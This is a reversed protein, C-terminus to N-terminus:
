QETIECEYLGSVKSVQFSRDIDGYQISFSGDMTLYNHASALRNLVEHMDAIFFIADEANSCKDEHIDAEVYLRIVFEELDSEDDVSATQIYTSQCNKLLNKVFSTTSIIRTQTIDEAELSIQYKIKVQDQLMIKYGREDKM